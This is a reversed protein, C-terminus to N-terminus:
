KKVVAKKKAKATPKKVAKKSAKAKVAKAKVEKAKTAKAEKAAKAQVKEQAKLEKLQDRMKKLESGAQAVIASFKKVVVQLNIAKKM